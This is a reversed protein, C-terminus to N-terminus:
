NAEPLGMDRLRVNMNMRVRERMSEPARAIAEVARNRFEREQDQREELFAMYDAVTGGEDLYRKMEARMTAVIGKMLRKEPTDAAATEFPRELEEAFRDAEGDGIDPPLAIWGPQAYAALHRDLRTLFLDAWGSAMEASILAHDGVIQRRGVAANVDRSVAFILTTAVTTALCVAAAAPAARRWASPDDGVLRYPRIGQRRLRAYADARDRADIWGDRNENASTQYLYRYKM